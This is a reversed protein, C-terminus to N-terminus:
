KNHYGQLYKQVGKIFDSKKIVGFNDKADFSAPYKLAVVTDRSLKQEDNSQEQQFKRKGNIKPNKIIGQYVRQILDYSIRSKKEVVNFNQM